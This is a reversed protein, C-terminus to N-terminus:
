MKRSCICEEQYLSQLEYKVLKEIFLSLQYAVYKSKDLQQKFASFERQKELPPLIFEAELIKTPSTHKVTSGAAGSLIHSRYEDTRMYFELYIKDIEESLQDFLGIRQNHLYVYGDDPVIAANGLTDSEKSLDTMTVILDGTHLVYDQSYEGTFFKCKKYQFGGGIRFNGPTVLLIGNDEETFYEGKFAYGHKIHAYKSLRKVPYTTDSVSGFLEIFQSKFILNQNISSNM